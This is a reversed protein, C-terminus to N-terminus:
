THALALMPKPFPCSPPSQTGFRHHHSRTSPPLYYPSLPARKVIVVVQLMMAVGYGRVARTTTTTTITTTTTTAAAAALILSRILQGVERKRRRVAMMVWINVSFSITVEPSSLTSTARVAVMGSGCSRKSGNTFIPATTSPCLPSYFSHSLLLFLVLFLLLCCFYATPHPILVLTHGSSRSYGDGVMEEEEERERRGGAVLSTRM